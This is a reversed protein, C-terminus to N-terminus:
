AVPQVTRRRIGTPPSLKGSGDLGAGLDVWGGTGHTAPRKGSPYLPLHKTSDVGVGRGAGTDVTHLTTGRGGM